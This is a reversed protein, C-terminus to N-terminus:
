RGDRPPNMIRERIEGIQRLWRALRSYEPVSVPGPPPINSGLLVAALDTAAKSTEYDELSITLPM